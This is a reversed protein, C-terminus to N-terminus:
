IGFITLIPPHEFFKKKMDLRTEDQRMNSTAEAGAGGGRFYIVVKGSIKPTPNYRLAQDKLSM